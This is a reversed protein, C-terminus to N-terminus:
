LCLRNRSPSMSALHSLVVTIHSRVQNFLTPPLNFSKDMETGIVLKSHLLHQLPFGASNDNQLQGVIAVNDNFMTLPVKTLESKGTGSVGFAMIFVETHASMDSRHRDTDHPLWDPWPVTDDAGCPTMLRGIFLAYVVRKVDEPFCQHDLIMDIASTPINHWSGSQFDGKLDEYLDFDQPHFAAVKISADM